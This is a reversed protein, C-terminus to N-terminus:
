IQLNKTLKKRNKKQQQGILIRVRVMLALTKHVEM